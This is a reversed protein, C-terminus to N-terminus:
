QGGVGGGGTCWTIVLMSGIGNGVFLFRWEGPRRVRTARSRKANQWGTIFAPRRIAATKRNTTNPADVVGGGGGWGGACSKSGESLIVSPAPAGVAAVVVPGPAIIPPSPAARNSEPSISIVLLGANLGLM